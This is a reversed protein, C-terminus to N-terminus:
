EGITYPEMSGWTRGVEIDVKLPLDVDMNFYEKVHEVGGELVKKTLVATEKLVKAEVDMMVSDHITNILLAKKVLHSNKRLERYLKGMCLPVIDATATGQIMYNKINTPSFSTFQQYKHMYEPADQEYFVYRRGTPSAYYSVGIPFGKPTKRKTPKRNKKVELIRQEQWEKVQPYRNYYNEIFKKALDESVGQKAAMSKYGAGYQLSFSFSKAIKRQEKTVADEPIGFLEAARVTHMDMGSLIDHKLQIDGTIIALVIVELQSYDAQLLYGDKFRSPFCDKIEIIEHM